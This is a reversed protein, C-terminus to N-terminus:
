EFLKIMDSILKGHQKKIPFHIVDNVLLIKDSGGVFEIEYSNRYISIKSEFGHESMAEMLEKIKGSDPPFRAKTPGDSSRRGKFVSAYQPNMCMYQTFTYYEEGIRYEKEMSNEDLFDDFAEEFARKEVFDGEM